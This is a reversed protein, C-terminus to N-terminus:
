MAPPRTSKRTLINGAVDAADLLDELTKSNQIYYDFADESFGEMEAESAHGEIGVEAQARLEAPRHVRILFAGSTKLTQLENAFRVDSIVVHTAPAGPAYTLGTTHHYIYGGGMLRSSVELARSLWLSEKVTRGWETGLSQLVIRPSIVERNKALGQRWDRLKDLAIGPLLGPGPVLADVFLPDYKQARSETALWADSADLADNYFAFRPDPADRMHSPGWLQEKTFGFVKYAYQKIPDALAIQQFGFQSVLQEAVTDKGSGAKGNIGVLKM